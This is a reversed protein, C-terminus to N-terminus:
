RAAAAAYCTRQTCVANAPDVGVVGLVPDGCLRRYASDHADQASKLSRELDREARSPPELRATGGGLSKVHVTLERLDALQDLGKTLEACRHAQHNIENVLGKVMDLRCVRCPDHGACGCAIDVSYARLAAERGAAAQAYLAKGLRGLLGNVVNARHAIRREVVGARDV